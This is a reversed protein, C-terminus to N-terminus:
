LYLRVEVFRSSRLLSSLDRSIAPYVQINHQHISLRNQFAVVTTPPHSSALHSGSLSLISHQSPLRVLSSLPLQNRGIETVISPSFFNSHRIHVVTGQEHFHLMLYQCHRADPMRRGGELAGIHRGYGGYGNYLFKWDSHFVTNRYTLDQHPSYESSSPTSPQAPQVHDHRPLHAGILLSLAAGRSIKCWTGILFSVLTHRAFPRFSESLSLFNLDLAPLLETFKGLPRIM